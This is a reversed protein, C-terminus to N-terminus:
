DMLGLVERIEASESLRKGLYRAGDETLHGEDFAILKGDKTFPHCKNGGGCLLKSLDIFNETITRSMLDNTVVHMKHMRTQLEIRESESRLLLRRLNISGFNKRGFVFVKKGFDKELNRKSEPLLKAQWEKWSSILWIADAQRMLEQLQDNAYWNKKRCRALDKPAIESSLDISLYLNGCSASIHYTSIQLGKNLGTEYLANLVDASYSDGIILIKRGGQPEFSKLERENFRSWTYKERQEVPVLLAQDHPSYRDTFGESVHGLLGFLALLVSGTASFVVIQKRSVSAKNRFPREVYRWSLYALLGALGALLLLEYWKVGPKWYRALAFLPQHWLYFSYSILGIGVLLRRGLLWGVLTESTACLIILAAGVTPLLAYIGPFPTTQDFIFVGSAILGLGILSAGENIAKTAIESHMWVMKRGFCQLSILAGILLEWARTPLLYFAKVPDLLSGIQAAVFSAVCALALIIIAWTRGIRLLALLLLPFILYYQEEVALSWTHLLPKLEVATDFYGSEQWFLMNSSFFSVFAVSQAFDKMDTPLLWLWAVPIIAVIVFFLAPLIRRARREYFGVFSFTGAVKESIIISTILYGSIVFFVDVGIFGGSFEEVGAHFLVVALVAIARLGDIERRYQMASEDWM